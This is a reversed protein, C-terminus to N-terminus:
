PRKIECGLVRVNSHMPKEGKRIAELADTLFHHSSQDSNKSDDIGGQFLVTLKTDIVFVHPTKYAQYENAIAVNQDQLVPFPLQATRFYHSAEEFTENFNSHIGVFNFGQPQYTKALQKLGPMHSNSCPCRASLFVVVTGFKSETLSVSTHQQTTLEMGFLKPSYTELSGAIAQKAACFIMWVCLTGVSRNWYFALKAIRTVKM